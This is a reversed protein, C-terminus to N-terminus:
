SYKLAKKMKIDFLNETFLRTTRYNTSIGFLKKKKETTVLKIDRLKRVNEMTQGFASNNTFKFFDKEFDYKAKGRLETNMDIYTKPWFKQNLKVVRLDKKM